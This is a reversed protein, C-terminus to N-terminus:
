DLVNPPEKGPEAEHDRGVVRQGELARAAALDVHHAPFARADLEDLAVDARAVVDIPHEELLEADLVREVPLGTIQERAVAIQEGPAGCRPVGIAALDLHRKGLPEALDAIRQAVLPAIVLTRHGREALGLAREQLREELFLASLSGRRAETGAGPDA